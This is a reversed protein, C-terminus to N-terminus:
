GANGGPCPHGSSHDGKAQRMYQALRRTVPTSPGVDTTPYLRAYLFPIWACCIRLADNGCCQRRHM